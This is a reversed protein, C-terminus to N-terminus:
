LLRQLSCCQNLIAVTPYRQMEFFKLLTFAVCLDFIKNAESDPGYRSSGHFFVTFLDREETRIFPSWDISEV